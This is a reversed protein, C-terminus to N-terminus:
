DFGLCEKSVTEEKDEFPPARRARAWAEMDEVERPIAGEGCDLMLSLNDRGRKRDRVVDLVFARELNSGISVRGIVGFAGEKGGWEEGMDRRLAVEGDSDTNERVSELCGLDSGGEGGEGWM